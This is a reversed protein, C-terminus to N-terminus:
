EATHLGGPLFVRVAQFQCGAFSVGPRFVGASRIIFPQGPNKAAKEQTVFARNGCGAAEGLGRFGERTRNDGAHKLTIKNGFM